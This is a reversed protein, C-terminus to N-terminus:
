KVNIKYIHQFDINDPIMSLNLKEPGHSKQFDTFINQNSDM